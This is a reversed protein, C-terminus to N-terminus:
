QRLTGRLPAEVVFAQLRHDLQQATILHADILPQFITEVLFAAQGLFAESYRSELQTATGQVLASVDDLFQDCTVPSAGDRMVAPTELSPNRLVHYGIGARFAPAAGGVPFEPVLWINQTISFSCPFAGLGQTTGLVRKSIVVQLNPFASIVPLTLREERPHTILNMETPTVSLITVSQPIVGALIGHLPEPLSDLSIRTSVSPAEGSSTDISIDTWNEIPYEGPIFQAFAPAANLIIAILALASKM